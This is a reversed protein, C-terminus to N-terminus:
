FMGQKIDHSLVLQRILKRNLTLMRFNMSFQYGFEKCYYLLIQTIIISLHLLNVWRLIVKKREMLHYVTSVVKFTLKSPMLGQVSNISNKAVSGGIM